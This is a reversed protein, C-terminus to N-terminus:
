ITDIGMMQIAYNSTVKDKICNKAGVWSLFQNKGTVNEREHLDDEKNEKNRTENVQM